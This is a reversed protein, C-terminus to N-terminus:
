YLSQCTTTTCSFRKRGTIKRAVPFEQYLCVNCQWKMIMNLTLLWMLNFLVHWWGDDLHLNITNSLLFNTTLLSIVDDSEDRHHSLAYKCACMLIHFLFTNCKRCFSFKFQMMSIIVTKWNKEMIYRYMNITQTILHCLASRILNCLAYYQICTKMDRWWWLLNFLEASKINLTSVFDFNPTLM